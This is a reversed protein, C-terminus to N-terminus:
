LLYWRKRRSTTSRCTILHLKNHNTVKNIISTVLAVIEGEEVKSDEEDENNAKTAKIIYRQLM